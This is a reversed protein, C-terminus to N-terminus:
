RRATRRHIVYAAVGGILALTGFTGMGWLVGDDVGTAALPTPPTNAPPAPPPSPTPNQKPPYCTDNAECPPTTASPTPTPTVEPTPTATASPTPTSTPYPDVGAMAAMPLSTLTGAILLVLIAKTSKLM